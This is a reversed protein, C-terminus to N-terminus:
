SPDLRLSENAPLSSWKEIVSFLAASAPPLGRSRRRAGTSTLDAVLAYAVQFV